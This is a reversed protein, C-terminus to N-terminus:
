GYMLQIERLSYETMEAFNGGDQGLASMEIEIEMPVIMWDFHDFMSDVIEKVKKAYTYISNKHVISLGSDHIQGCLIARIRHKRIARQVRILTWLLM